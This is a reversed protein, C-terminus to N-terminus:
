PITRHSTKPSPAFIGSLIMAAILVGLATWGYHPVLGVLIGGLMLIPGAWILYRAAPVHIGYTFYILGIMLVVLQSGLPGRLAAHEMALGTLSAFILIFGVFWHLLTRRELRRNLEGTRKMYRHGIWWSIMGGAWGGIAFFLGAWSPRVDILTYGILVYAAWMIALSKPRGAQFRHQEVADRVFRLDESIENSINM